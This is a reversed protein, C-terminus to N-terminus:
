PPQLRYVVLTYNLLVHSMHCEISQSMHHTQIIFSLSSKLLRHMIIKVLTRCCFLRAPLYFDTVLCSSTILKTIALSSGLKSVRPPGLM